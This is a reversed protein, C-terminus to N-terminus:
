RTGRKFDACLKQLALMKRNGAIKIQEESTLNRPWMDHGFTMLHGCVICITFDGPEPQADGEVDLAMDLTKHCDLCRFTRTPNDRM